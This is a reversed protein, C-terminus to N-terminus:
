DDLWSKRLSVQAPTAQDNIGLLHKVEREVVIAEAKLEVEQLEGAENKRQVTYSFPKGKQLSQQQRFFFERFEQNYPILEGNIKLLVDGDKFGFAKGQDNLAQANAIALKPSSDEQTITVANSELGLNLEPSIFTEIYNIGVMEFIEKLPLKETGAVYKNLFEGIEPYTLATIEEFLKDDEFPKEKGYKKSLDAVLNQLGYSGDSLKRLKIDICMGILAGKQYVNYYQDKYQTLTYKSIDTFPVTDKFSEATLIKERLVDLYNEPTILEYKVQVNGAFYETVGEYLWLHQSMKPDNYDFNEIEESHITLPTVIHFFEHAAFDRLQQNMQEITAEPMYYFSSASHELAGYTYVPEQTFYFIFAYKEVPLNGGLYEKQAMLVERVSNAIEKATIKQSPSYAGILVETNGIKIIATDPRSYMLPSDIMEDYDDILYTDVVKNNDQSGKELKVTTKSSPNQPILATSGYLDKSRVVNLVIATEKMNEFYGFYGASNILYNKNEEINTGAPKFINPGSIETDFSDNVWYSIKHLRTANKIKWTNDNVREFPLARGKKDVPKFDSVYRGYDAIAYTGPIIKPLYFTIESSSIHPPLLEIMVKDDVVQTLDVTYHYTNAKKAQGLVSFISIAILLFSTIIQKM